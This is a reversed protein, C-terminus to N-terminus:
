MGGSAIGPLIAKSTVCNRVSVFRKILSCTLVNEKYLPGLRLFNNDDNKALLSDLDVKNIPQSDWMSVYSPM